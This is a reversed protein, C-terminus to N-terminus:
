QRLSNQTQELEDSAQIMKLAYQYARQSIIVQSMEKAMDVNSLELYGNVLTSKSDDTPSQDQSYAYGNKDVLTFQNNGTAVMGNKVPVKYIGIKTLLTSADLPQTGEPSGEPIMSIPMGNGDLVKKGKGDTLYYGDSENTMQFSGDRTYVTQGTSPDMLAFFGEGNIAFDYIGGTQAMGSTGFNVDTKDLRMAHGEQVKGNTVKSMNSYILDAFVPNSSKFGTTNINAMNNAIVDLKAQQGGAGVAATYFSLNM